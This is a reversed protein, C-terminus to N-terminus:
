IAELITAIGQGGGICQTALAFRPMDGYFDAAGALSAFIKKGNVIYGAEGGQVAPLALTGWPAKGAAAAGGESFPQSYVKGDRVINAFHVARFAEHEARQEASM